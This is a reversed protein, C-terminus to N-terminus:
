IELEAVSKMMSSELKRLELAIPEIKDKSLLDRESILADIEEKLLIRKEEKRARKLLDIKESVISNLSWKKSELEDYNREKRLAKEKIKYDKYIVMARDYVNKVRDGEFALIEEVAKGLAIYKM